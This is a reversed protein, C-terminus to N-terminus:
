RGSIYLINKKRHQFNLISQNNERICIMYQAPLTRNCRFSLFFQHQILIKNLFFHFYSILQQNQFLFRIDRLHLILDAALREFERNQHFLFEIAFSIDYILYFFTQIHSLFPYPYNKRQFQLLVLRGFDLGVLIWWLVLYLIKNPGSASQLPLIWREIEKHQFSLDILIVQFFRQLNIQKYFLKTGPNVAKQLKTLLRWKPIIKNELM